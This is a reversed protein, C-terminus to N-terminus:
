LGLAAQARLLADKDATEPSFGLTARQESGWNALALDLSALPVDIQQALAHARRELNITDGIGFIRKASTTMLDPSRGSSPAPHLAEARLEYLELAGLTVLLEYRGARSFGAIALREFAREFRRGSSWGPDGALGQAQSGSNQAWRRYAQLTSPGRAPDHATRPGLPIEQLDPLLGSHWDGAPQALVTRIGRFPDEDQLPSIYAALFCIWSAQEIDSQARAEAYIDPPTQNLALLRGAAFGIEQAVRQADSSARLGPVLSSRYGDDAFRSEHLVRVGEPERM